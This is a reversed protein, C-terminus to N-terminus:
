AKNRIVGNFHNGLEKDLSELVQISSADNNQWSFDFKNKALCDPLEGHPTLGIAFRGGYGGARWGAPVASRDADCLRVGGGARRCRGWDRSRSWFGRGASREAVVDGMGGGGGTGALGVSVVVVSDAM